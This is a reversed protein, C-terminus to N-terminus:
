SRQNCKKKPNEDLAVITLNDLVKNYFLIDLIETPAVTRDLGHERGGGRHLRLITPFATIKYTSLKLGEHTYVPRFCM